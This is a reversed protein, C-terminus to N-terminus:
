AAPAPSGEEREVASTDDNLVMLLPTLGEVDVLRFIEIDRRAKESWGAIKLASEAKSFLGHNRLPMAKDLTEDKLQEDTVGRRKLEERWKKRVETLDTDSGLSEERKLKELENKEGMWWRGRKPWRVLDLDDLVGELQNM